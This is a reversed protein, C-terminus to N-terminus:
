VIYGSITIPDINNFDGVSPTTVVLSGVPSEAYITDFAITNNIIQWANKTFSYTVSLDGQVLKLCGARGIAQVLFLQVDGAFNFLNIYLQVCGNGVENPNLVSVSLCHNPFNLTGDAFPPAYLTTVYWEGEVPTLPQGNCNSNIDCCLDVPVERWTGVKPKQERLILSSSVIKKQGDYRVWAKLKNNTAM